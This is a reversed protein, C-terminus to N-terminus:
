QSEWKQIRDPSFLQVNEFCHEFIVLKSIRQSLSIYIYEYYDYQMNILNESFLRGLYM